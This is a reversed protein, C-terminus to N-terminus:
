RFRKKSHYKGDLYEMLRYLGATLVTVVAMWLIALLFLAAGTYHYHLWFLGSLSVSLYGASATLTILYTLYKKM